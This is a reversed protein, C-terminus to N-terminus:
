FRDGDTEGCIEAMEEERLNHTSLVKIAKKQKTKMEVAHGMAGQRRTLTDGLHITPRQDALM